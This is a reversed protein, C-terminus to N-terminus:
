PRVGAGATNAAVEPAGAHEAIWDCVVSRLEATREVLVFHSAGPFPVFRGRPLVEALHRGRDFLDSETGYCCLVPCAISALEVDTIVPEARLDARLSTHNILRDAREAIREAKRRSTIGLESMVNEASLQCGVLEMTADMEAGWGGLPYHGDVLVLSAVREPHHLATTIGVAGGYSCCLLHVPQDCGTADLLALLDDVMTAVAYGSPEFASRNHGRLDYLVVDARESLAGALTFYFGQLGDLVLGHLGVVVPRQGTDDPGRRSRWVELSTGNVELRAM